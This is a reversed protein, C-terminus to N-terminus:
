LIRFLKYRTKRRADNWCMRFFKIRTTLSVEPLKRSINYCGMTYKLRQEFKNRFGKAGYRKDSGSGETFDLTPEPVYVVLGLVVLESVIYSALCWPNGLEFWRKMLMEKSSSRYLGYIWEAPFTLNRPVQGFVYKETFNLASDNPVKIRSGSTGVLKTPCAALLKDPNADLAEVLRALFDQSSHDDCARLCFYEGREAGLQVARAFNEIASVHEEFKVISFRRDWSCFQEAIDLTKDTSKNDLIIAEFDGFTQGAICRLSSTLTKEGNYVPFVVVVKPKPM